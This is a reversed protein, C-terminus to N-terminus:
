PAGESSPDIDLVSGSPDVSAQSAPDVSHVIRPPRGPPTWPCCPQTCPSPTQQTCRLGLTLGLSLALSLQQTCL